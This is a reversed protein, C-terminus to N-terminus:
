RQQFASLQISKEYTYQRVGQQHDSWRAGALGHQCRAKDAQQRFHAILFRQFRRRDLRQRAAEMGAVPFYPWIATRMVGRRADGQDAATTLLM